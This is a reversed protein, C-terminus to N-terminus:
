GQIFRKPMGWFERGDTYYNGQPHVLETVNGTADILEKLGEMEEPKRFEPSSQFLNIARGLSIEWTAAALATALFWMRSEESTARESRPYRRHRKAELFAKALAPLGPYPSGPGGGHKPHLWWPSAQCAAQLDEITTAALLANWTQPEPPKGRYPMFRWEFGTTDGDNKVIVDAWHHVGDPMGERVNKFLGFWQCATAYLTGSPQAKPGRKGM